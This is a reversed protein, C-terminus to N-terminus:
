LSNIGVITMRGDIPLNDDFHLCSHGHWHNYRFEMQNQLQKLRDLDWEPSSLYDSQSLHVTRQCRCLIEADNARLCRNWWRYWKHPNRRWCWVPRLKTKPWPNYRFCFSQVPQFKDHSLCLNWILKPYITQKKKQQPQPNTQPLRTSLIKTKWEIM